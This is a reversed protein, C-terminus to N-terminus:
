RRFMENNPDVIRAKERYESSKDVNGILTNLRSLELLMEFHNPYQELSGVLQAIKREVVKEPYVKDELESEAGLVSESAQETTLLEKATEYDGRESAKVVVERTNQVSAVSNKVNLLSMLMAIGVVGVGIWTYPLPSRGATKYIYQELSQLFKDSKKM